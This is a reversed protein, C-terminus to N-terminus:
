MTSSPSLERPDRTILVTDWEHLEVRMVVDGGFAGLGLVM